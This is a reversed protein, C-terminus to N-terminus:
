KAGILLLSKWPIVVPVIGEFWTFSSLSSSVESQAEISQYMTKFVIPTLFRSLIDNVGFYFDRVFGQLTQSVQCVFQYYDIELSSCYGANHLEEKRDRM